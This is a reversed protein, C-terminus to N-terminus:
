AVAVAAADLAKQQVKVSDQLSVLDIYLNEVGAITSIM